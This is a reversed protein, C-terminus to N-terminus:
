AFIPLLLFGIMGLVTLSILVIKAIKVIPKEKKAM